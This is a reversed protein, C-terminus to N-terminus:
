GIENKIKNKNKEVWQVSEQVWYKVRDYDTRTKETEDMVRNMRQILKDAFGQKTTEDAGYVELARSMHSIIDRKRRHDGINIWLWLIYTLDQWREAPHVGDWDIIIAPNNDRFVINCPSLDDHCLILEDSKVFDMSIDHFERVIKMFAHLQLETTDGLDPPVFGEVFAFIERNQNDKGLYRQSYIFEKQELFKLVQAIYGSNKKKPRRVTNGIRTVGPTTRGGDLKKRIEDPKPDSV